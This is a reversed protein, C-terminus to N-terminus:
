AVETAVAAPAEPEAVDTAACGALALLADATEDALLPVVPIALFAILYWLKKM